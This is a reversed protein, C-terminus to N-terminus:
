AEITCPTLVGRDDNYPCKNEIPLRHVLADVYESNNYMHVVDMLEQVLDPRSTALNNHEGEDQLVDYM